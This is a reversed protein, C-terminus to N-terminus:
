LSLLNKMQHQIFSQVSLVFFNCLNSLLLFNNLMILLSRCKQQKGKSSKLKGQYSVHYSFKQTFVHLIPFPAKKKQINEKLPEECSETLLLASQAANTHPHPAPYRVRSNWTLLIIFGHSHLSPYHPHFVVWVADHPNTVCRWDSKTIDLTLMPVHGWRLHLDCICKLYGSRSQIALLLAATQDPTGFSQLDDTRM